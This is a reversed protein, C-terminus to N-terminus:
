CQIETRLMETSFLVFDRLQIKSIDLFNDLSIVIKYMTLQLSEDSDTGPAQDERGEAGQTRFLKHEVYVYNAPERM